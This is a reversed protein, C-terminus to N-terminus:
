FGTIVSRRINPGINLRANGGMIMMAEPNDHAWTIKTALDIPNGPDFLLGTRHDEVIDAMAGLRSAIVPLGAAFAELITLPFGEYWESPFVLARASLMERKVADFSLRGLPEVQAGHGKEESVESSLPGDGAIRVVFDDLMSAAALM